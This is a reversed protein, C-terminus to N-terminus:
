KLLEEKLEEFVKSLKRHELEVEENAFGYYNFEGQLYMLRESVEILYQIM